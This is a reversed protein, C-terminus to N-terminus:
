YAGTRYTVEDEIRSSTEGLIKWIRKWADDAMAVKDQVESDRCMSVLALLRIQEDRSLGLDEQDMLLFTFDSWPQPFSGM